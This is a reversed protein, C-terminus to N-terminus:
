PRQLNTFFVRGSEAVVRDAKYRAESMRGNATTADDCIGNAIHSMVRNFTFPDSRDAEAYALAQRLTDNYQTAKM